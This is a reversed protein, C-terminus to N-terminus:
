AYPYLITVEKSIVSIAGYFPASRAILYASLSELYSRANKTNAILKQIQPLIDIDFGPESVDFFVRFYYPEGQYEFWEAVQINRYNFAELAAKLAGITGKKKHVNISAKIVNRRIEESWNDSWDDVSLAWALWPLIHNTALNPNVVYRNLTPLNFCNASTVELDKLLASANPPLLSQNLDDSM